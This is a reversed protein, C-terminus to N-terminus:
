ANEKDLGLDIDLAEVLKPNLYRKFAEAIAEDSFDFYSEKGREGIRFGGGIGKAGKFTLHANAEKSM